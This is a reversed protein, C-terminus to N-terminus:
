KKVTDWKTGVYTQISTGVLQLKGKLSDTNTGLLQLKNKAYDISGAWTKTDVDMLVFERRAQAVRKAMSPSLNLNSTSMLLRQTSKDLMNMQVLAEQESKTLKNFDSSGGIKVKDFNAKIKNTQERTLRLSDNFKKTSQSSQDMANKSSNRFKKFQNEVDRVKKSAEDQAKIVLEITHKLSM